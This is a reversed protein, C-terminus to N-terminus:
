HQQKKVSNGPAERTFEASWWKLCVLGHEDFSKRLAVLM